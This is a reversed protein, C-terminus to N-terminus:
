SVYVKAQGYNSVAKSKIGPNANANNNNSIITNTNPQSDNKGTQLNNDTFTNISTKNYNSNTKDGIM